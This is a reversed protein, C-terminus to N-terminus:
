SRPDGAIKTVPSPFLNAVANVFWKNDIARCLEFVFGSVGLHQLSDFVFLVRAFKGLRVGVTAEKVNNGYAFDDEISM